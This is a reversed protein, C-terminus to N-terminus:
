QSTEQFLQVLFLRREDWALVSATFCDSRGRGGSSSSTKRRMSLVGGFGCLGFGSGAFFFGLFHCVLYLIWSDDAEMQKITLPNGKLPGNAPHHERPGVGFKREVPDDKAIRLERVSGAARQQRPHPGLRQHVRGLRQARVDLDRGLTLRMEIANERLHRGNARHPVHDGM